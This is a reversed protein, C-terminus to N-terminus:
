RIENELFDVADDTDDFLVADCKPCKFIIFTTNDDDDDTTFDLMHSIKDTDATGEDIVCRKYNLSDCAEKCMPCINSDGVKKTESRTPPAAQVVHQSPTPASKTPACGPCSVDCTQGPNEQPAPTVEDKFKAM